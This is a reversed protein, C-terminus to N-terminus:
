VLCNNGKQPQRAIRGSKREKKQKNKQQKNKQQDGLFYNFQQIVLCLGKIIVYLLNKGSTHKKTQIEVQSAKDYGKAISEDAVLTFPGENNPIFIEVLKQNERSSL